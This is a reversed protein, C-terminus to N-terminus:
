KAEAQLESTAVPKAKAKIRDRLAKEKQAQEALLQKAKQLDKEDTIVLIIDEYVIISNQAPWAKANELLGADYLRKLASMFEPNTFQGVWYKQKTYGPNYFSPISWPTWPYAVSLTILDGDKYTTQNKPYFNERFALTKGLQFVNYRKTSDFNSNNELRAQMRNYMMVESDFGMKWTRQMYVDNIAFLYIILSTILIKVNQLICGLRLCLAIILANFLGYGCFEVRAVAIVNANALIAVIKTLFLSIIFTILILIKVAISRKSLLVQLLFMIALILFLKTLIDPYFPMSWDTFQQWATEICLMAKKPLEALPTTKMNYHDHIINSHKMHLIIIQYIVFALIINIFTGLNYKITKM